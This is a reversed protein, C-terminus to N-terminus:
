AGWFDRWDRETPRYSSTPGGPGHQGPTAAEGAEIKRSRGAPGVDPTRPFRVPRLARAPRHDPHAFYILGLLSGIVVVYILAAWLLWSM